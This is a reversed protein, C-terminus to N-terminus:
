QSLQCHDSPADRTPPFALDRWPIDTRDFARVEQGEATIGALGGTVTAGYIVLVVAANSYSSVNLLGDLRIDLLM